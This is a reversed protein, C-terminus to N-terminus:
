ISSCHLMWSEAQFIFMRTKGIEVAWVSLTLSPLTINNLIEKPNKIEIDKDDILTVVNKAGSRSKELNYFYKTNREGENYYQCKSRFLAGKVKEDMLDEYDQKTRYYVQRESVSMESEDDFKRLYEELQSLVVKRDSARKRCYSQSAKIVQLKIADWREGPNLSNSMNVASEITENIIDCYKKEKLVSNNLKWVGKGRKTFHPEIECEVISHDSKFSPKIQIDKIWGSLSQECLVFDIRRAVYKPKKRRFTYTRKDPNRDRWIDMFSAEEMFKLLYEKSKDHNVTVGQVKETRDLRSDLILNFDGIIIKKGEFDM